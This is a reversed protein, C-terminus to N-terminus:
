TMEEVYCWSQPPRTLNCAACDSCKPIALGLDGYKCERNYKKFGQLELPKDYIILDHINWGYFVDHKNLCLLTGPKYGLYDLVDKRTLATGELTREADESVILNDLVHTDINECVFEGIVKGKARELKEALDYMGLYEFVPFAWRSNCQYIYVTFPVSLKPIDKRIEVTKEGSAIEECWQPKISILVAQKSM